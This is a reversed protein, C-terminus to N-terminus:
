VFAHADPGGFSLSLPARTITRCYPVGDPFALASSESQWVTRMVPTRSAFRALVVAVIRRAARWCIAWCPPPPREIRATARSTPITEEATYRYKGVRSANSVLIIM